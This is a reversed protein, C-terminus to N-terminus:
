VAPLNNSILSGRFHIANTGSYFLHTKRLGLIPGKRLNYPIDKHTFLFWMFQPNLHSISKYIEIMLFRVDKISQSRTIKYCYTKM